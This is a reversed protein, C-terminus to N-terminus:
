FSVANMDLKPLTNHIKTTMMAEFFMPLWYDFAEVTAGQATMAIQRTEHYFQRVWRKRRQGQEDFSYRADLCMLKGRIWHKHSEIEVGPLAEIGAVFGASLDDLDDASISIELDRVEVAFLTFLEDASPTYIVGQKGDPWAVKHWDIPIFFSYYPDRHWSLGKFAPRNTM